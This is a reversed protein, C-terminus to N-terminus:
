NIKYTKGDVQLAVQVSVLNVWSMKLSYQRGIGANLSIESRFEIDVLELVRTLALTVQVSLPVTMLLM